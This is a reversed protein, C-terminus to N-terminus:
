FNFKSDIKDCRTHAAKINQKTESKAQSYIGGCTKTKNKQQSSNESEGKKNARFIDSSQDDSDSNLLLAAAKGRLAKKPRFEEEGSSM